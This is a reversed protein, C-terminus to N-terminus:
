VHARGIEIKNAWDLLQLRRKLPMTVGTPFQHSPTTYIACSTKSKPLLSVQLGDSDVPITKIALNNNTFVAAAKNYGPEEM